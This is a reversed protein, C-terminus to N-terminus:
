RPLLRILRPAPQRQPQASLQAEFIRQIQQRGLEAMGKLHRLEESTMRAPEWFRRAFRQQMIRDLQEQSVSM